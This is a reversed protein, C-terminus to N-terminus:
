GLLGYKELKKSVKEGKPIYSIDTKTIGKLLLLSILYVITGMIVGALIALTDINFFSSTIDPKFIGAIMGHTAFATVGCLVACIFPKLLVSAWRIRVKTIKVLSLINCVAIVAYFVVTGILAGFLNLKPIGVLFFNCVIKIVAAVIVSKVPIDSRGIAQLMNAAPTTVAMLPTIIGFFAMVPAIISVSDSCAGRGYLMNTIPTALSAMGFGAPIAILLGIRLVTEVTSRLEKRNKEVWAAALAPIAIIGLQVTVSPILTKFDLATGYAGWLYKVIKPIDDLNLRDLAVAQDMATKHMEYVATFDNNLASSLRAQITASDIINTINFILAGIIMPVALGTIDKIISVGDRPAPSNVLQVRQIGDGKKKHYLILFVLSFASGATVGIVAAAAAWPAIAGALDDPNDVAKFFVTGSNDYQNEGIVTVLKALALGIGLKGLAEIIRSIATPIMNSMGEYYGRYAPILCCIFVSPTVALIAPLSSLWDEGGTIMAYPFAAIVFLVTGAIGAFLFIRKSVIFTMRTDRFRNLRVNEAVTKSVAAPLGAMAIALIPAYIEYASSFYGRGVSGIMNSLPMKFLVGIIKVIVASMMLVAAGNILSQKKKSAM